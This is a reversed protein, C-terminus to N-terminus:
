AKRKRAATKKKRGNNGSPELAFRIASLVDTFFKFKVKKKIETPIESTDKRNEEPLIVTKVGSRMASSERCYTSSPARM